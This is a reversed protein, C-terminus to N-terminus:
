VGGYDVGGIEEIKAWLLCLLFEKFGHYTEAGPKIRLDCNPCYHYIRFKMDKAQQKEVSNIAVELAYRLSKLPRRPKAQSEYYSLLAKLSKIVQEFNM